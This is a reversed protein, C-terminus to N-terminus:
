GVRVLRRASLMMLLVTVGCLVAVDVVIPAGLAPGGMARLALLDLYAAPSARAIWQLSQPLPILINSLYIMPLYLLNVLAPAAKGSARTGIFLGIACFPLAGFIFVLAVTAFQGANLRLHVIAAASGIMTAMVIATFLVAMSMKAVLYAAPPMPLARKLNLLGQERELAVFIGFGFMGPGMAGFTAFGTFLYLPTNPDQKAADGFLLVGFLLYLAAPLVLFPFAFGPSRLARICEYKAEKLYARLILAQSMM